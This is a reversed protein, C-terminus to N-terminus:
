KVAGSAAAQKLPPKLGESAPTVKYIADSTAIKRMLDPLRYKSAAFDAELSKAFAENAGGIGTAYDTLRRVLCAPARPNDHLARGLGAADTFKVGDLEGSADIPAGNEDTRYSGATDFNEMALGM